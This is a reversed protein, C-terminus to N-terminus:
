GGILRSSIKDQMTKVESLIKFRLKNSVKHRERSTFTPPPNSTVSCLIGKDLFSITAEYKSLNWILSSCRADIVLIDHLTFM